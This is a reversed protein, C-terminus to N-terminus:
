RRGQGRSPKRGVGAGVPQRRPQTHGAGVPQHKPPPPAGYDFDPLVRRALRCKLQREVRALISSEDPSMFVMSDGADGARGTRGIRHVYEESAAPVDFNIVHTIHRVDLGRAAINTAVLIPYIRARFGQLARTRQAATRDSHLETVNHGADNM